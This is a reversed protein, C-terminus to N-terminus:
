QLLDSQALNPVITRVEVHVARGRDGAPLLRHDRIRDNEYRVTELQRSAPLQAPLPKEIVILAPDKLLKCSILCYHKFACCPDESAEDNESPM